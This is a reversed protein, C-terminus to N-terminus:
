VPIMGMRQGAVWRAEPIHPLVISFSYHPIASDSHSWYERSSKDHISCHATQSSQWMTWPTSWERRRILCVPTLSRTLHILWICKSGSTHPHNTSDLSWPWKANRVSQVNTSATTSRLLVSQTGSHFCGKQLRNTQSTTTGIAVKRLCNTQNSTNTHALRKAYNTICQTRWGNPGTHRHYSESDPTTIYRGNPQHNHGPLVAM